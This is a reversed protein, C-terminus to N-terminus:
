MAVWGSGACSVFTPNDGGGRSIPQHWTQVVAASDSIYAITGSNSSNCPPLQAYTTSALRLSTTAVAGDGDVAFGPSSIASTSFVANTMDIGKSLRPADEVKLITAGVSLASKGNAASFLIGDRYGVSGVQNSISLAADYVTGQVADDATGVIQLGSKYAVSAGRSVQVNIEGGTVNLINTAGPYLVALPSLGFIQGKAQGMTSGTGGLPSTSSMLTQLATYNWNTQNERPAGRVQGLFFGAQLGGRHGAALYTERLFPTLFGDDGIQPTLPHDPTGYRHRDINLDKYPWTTGNAKDTREEPLQTITVDDRVSISSLKDAPKLSPAPLQRASLTVPILMLCASILSKLCSILDNETPKNNDAM